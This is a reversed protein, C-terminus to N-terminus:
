FKKSYSVFGLYNTPFNKINAMEKQVLFNMRVSALNNLNRLYFIEFDQEKGNPALSASGQYRAVNGANDRAIAVDFNVSGRYVRLPELYSMGLEGNLFNNHVLAISTSRSRINDFSRFIGIQNGNIKSVGESFSAILQLNKFFKKAATFKVYSTKVDGISEFAGVSRSNLMNNNFETLSGGSFLFSLDNKAKFSMGFDVIQNQKTGNVAVQPSEYSSQYSFKLAFKQNFFSQDLFLQNFKRSNQWLNVSGQRMFDQYPGAAFNNKLIFGSAGFDKQQSASIEDFNFAFGLSSNPLMVDNQVFSFGNNQNNMQQPDISRDMVLHKLGMVNQAESNKYGLLNFRMNSKGDQGFRLPLVRSAINNNMLYSLDTQHTPKYSTIKKDLSAKYDRGFDDFFVAGALKPIVNSAFADGFIPSTMMSSTRLDYGGSNVNSGFVVTNQGQAQVAEYLNLMGHGYIEDVGAVGMDTASQLLIQATQPATLFPWAGRIVAAAGTVHPTAMSTGSITWYSSDTPASNAATISVGPATLCYDKTVGCNNSFDAIRYGGDHQELAGVALIYGRLQTNNAYLAPITPNPNILYDPNQWWSQGDGRQDADNATAVVMLVDKDKGVLFEDFDDTMGYSGGEGRNNGDYSSYYSYGWSSNTVKAGNNAAYEIGSESSSSGIMNVAFAKANFAVGHMGNGDKVGIITSMVHTGHGSTDTVDNTSPSVNFNRNLANIINGSIEQHTNRAGTDTVGVIVGEGAVAKDNKDLLAYAEAAHIAELGWQNNYEYTRYINAEDATVSSFWSSPAPPTPDDGGELLQLPPM